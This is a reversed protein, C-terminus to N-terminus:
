AFLWALAAGLLGHLATFIGAFEIASVGLNGLLVEEGGRRIYRRLVLLEVVLAGTEPLPRFGFLSISLAHPPANLYAAISVNLAKLLGYLVLFDVLYAQFHPGRVWSTVGSRHFRATVGGLAHARDAM